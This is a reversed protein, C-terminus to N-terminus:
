QSLRFNVDAMSVVETPEGNLLTPRYVWQKVAETAAPVLLPHGSVLQASQVRGDKGIVIQFRVVGQIRAQKALPPYVPEVKSILNPEQVNGSIRIRQPAVVGAAVPPPPPPPPAVRFESGLDGAKARKTELAKQVWGDAAQTDRQYEDTTDRLDARERILLNLYAMADDYAPDIELAKELNAIGEEIVSGFRAQLSLRTSSSSLPGPDEPRMGLQARATSLAPYFKSWAIVGLSYYAEKGSPNVEILKRDWEASQDLMRTKEGIDRQSGAENFALMSLSSLATVNKPDLRVATEFEAQARRALEGNEPSEAGPIWQTLLATGLYGHADVRSPNLSVAREFAEAAEPYRAAKFLQVGQNMWDAESQALAGIATFACLLFLRQPM